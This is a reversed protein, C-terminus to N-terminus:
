DQENGGFKVGLDSMLEFYHSESVIENDYLEKALVGYDGLYRNENGIEYLKTDFGYDLATQRPKQKLKDAYGESLLGLDKLRFVIATRSCSFYQELKLVTALSISDKSELEDLNDIQNLIGDSPLLFYAAFVDANYEEIDKKNFIATQCTQSTFNEQIFLHYLEHCITFHQRGLTHNSNILMFRHVAQNKSQVKIAMGSMNASLPKFLTVVDLSQLFSSLHISERGNFGQTQRFELAKKELIINKMRIFVYFIGTTKEIPMM